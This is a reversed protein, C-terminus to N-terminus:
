DLFKLFEASTRTKLLGGALKKVAWV